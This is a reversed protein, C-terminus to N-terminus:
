SSPPDRVVAAGEPHPRKRRDRMTLLSAFRRTEFWAPDCAEKIKAGILVLGTIVVFCDDPNRDSQRCSSRDGDLRSILIGIKRGSGARIDRRMRYRLYRDYLPGGLLKLPGEVIKWLLALDVAAAELSKTIHLEFKDSGTTHSWGATSRWAREEAFRSVRPPAAQQV